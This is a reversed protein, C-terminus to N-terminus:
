EYFLSFELELDISKPTGFFAYSYCEAYSNILFKGSKAAKNLLFYEFQDTYEFYISITNEVLHKVLIADRVQVGLSDSPNSIM